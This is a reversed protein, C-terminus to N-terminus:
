PKKSWMNVIDRLKEKSPEDLGQFQRFFAIDKVEGGKPDMTGHILADVTTGLAAAMAALKEGSPLPVDRNELEWLYSKSSSALTALKDLSLKQERRLGRLRTGFASVV